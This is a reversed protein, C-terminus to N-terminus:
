DRNTNTHVTRNMADSGSFSRHDRQDKRLFIRSIAPMISTNLVRRRFVRWDGNTSNPDSRIRERGADKWNGPAWPKGTYGIWYGAKELKDTFVQLKAPFLSSHTGAEELQWINQGTLIAARSPSCQPAASFANTFLVGATALSDFVPTKVGTTGFVSAYPYSQDDSIALLINPRIENNSAAEGRGSCGPVLGLVLLYPLLRRM